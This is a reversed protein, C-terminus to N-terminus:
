QCGTEHSGDACDAKGDCKGAAPYNEGNKCPLQQTAPPKGGTSGGAGGTGGTGTAGGEGALNCKSITLKCSKPQVYSAKVDGRLMSSTLNECAPVGEALKQYAAVDDKMCTLADDVTAKCATGFDCELSRSKSFYLRIRHM